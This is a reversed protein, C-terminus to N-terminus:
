AGMSVGRWRSEPPVIADKYRRDRYLEAILEESMFPRNVGRGGVIGPDDPSLSHVFPQALRRM